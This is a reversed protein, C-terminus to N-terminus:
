IAVTYPDNIAKRLGKDVGDAIKNDLDDVGYVPENINVTVNVTKDGKSYNRGKPSAGAGGLPRWSGSHQFNTTDMKHGNIIAFFHGMGDKLNTHIKDGSFGFLSALAILADSGDSCNTAGSLLASVWDGKWDSDMYFKYPIASFLASAVAMFENWKFGTAKGNWFRKVPFGNGLVTGNLSPSNAKWSKGEKFITKKHKSAFNWGGFGSDSFLSLFDTLNVRKSGGLQNVLENLTITKNNSSKQYPNVGAGHKGGSSSRSSFIKRATNPKPSRSYSKVGSGGFWESPNTLKHYFGGITNKVGDFKEKVGDKIKKVSELIRDKLEGFVNILKHVAKSVGDKMANMKDVAGQKANQFGQSVNSAIGTLTNWIRSKLGRFIGSVTSSLNGFVEGWRGVSSSIYNPFDITIGNILPAIAENWVNGLHTQISESIGGFNFIKGLDISPLTIGLTGWPDNSFGSFWDIIPKFLEQAELNGHKGSFDFLWEWPNATFEDLKIWFSDLGAYLSNWLWEWWDDTTNAIASHEQLNKMNEAMKGMKESAEDGTIGAKELSTAYEDLRKKSSKQQFHLVQLAKYYKKTGTDMVDILEGAESIQEKTFNHQKMTSRLSTDMKVGLKDFSKHYKDNWYTGHEVAHTVDNLTDKASNLKKEYKEVEKSNEGYKEKAKELKNNLRDVEDKYPKISDQPSKMVENFRKTKDWVDSLGGSLVYFAGALALIAGAFWTIPNSLMAGTLLGISGSLSITTGEAITEGTVMASLGGLFGLNAGTALDTAGAEANRAVIMGNIITILSSEELQESTIGLLKMGIAESTTTTALAEANLGFVLAGISQTLGMTSAQLLGTGTRYATVLPILTTFATGLLGLKTITQGLGKTNLWKWINGLGTAMGQGIGMITNFAGVISPQVVNVMEASWEGFRNQLITIIDNLSNAKVVFTDWNRSKGVKDLAELLGMVDNKDGSWGAEKLQDGKVGTERSLRQFEGQLIDKVALSAENANRGARLYESTIMSVVPMAKEMEKTSLEFEVGISSITEGLSYKNIRQFQSVTEDLKKNFRDIQGQSFHLMKFYGEMESKAHVTESTALLLKHAFNYAFMSAVLGGMMRLSSLAKGLSKTASAQRTTATTTRSSASAQRGISNSAQNSSIAVEKDTTSLQRNANALKEASMYTSDYATKLQNLTSQSSRETNTLEKISSSVGEIKVTTGSITANWAEFISNILNIGQEARITDSSLTVLAKSIRSISQSLREFNKINNISGNLQNVENILRQLETLLESISRSFNNGRFNNLASVLKDVAIISSDIGKNFGSNDLTLLAEISAGANAM